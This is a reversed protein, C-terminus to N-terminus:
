FRLLWRAMRPFVVGFACHLRLIWPYIASHRPSHALHVLAEACAEVSLTPITKTLWPMKEAVGPNNTFYESNIKGFIVHSCEVGTGALDQSLAHHFGRLAARAATYGVSSPWPVICAPSNVSIIVGSKRELMAPLFAHTVNFAAFYPAQMMAVAESPDTDQVTKWQGAGACHVVVDPVGHDRLVWEALAAVQSADAADCPAAIATVGLEEALAAIKSESRAVLVVRAGQRSFARAAAEGVGSSAGTILVLDM